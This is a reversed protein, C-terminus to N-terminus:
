ASNQVLRAFCCLMKLHRSFIFTAVATFHTREDPLGNWPNAGTVPFVHDGRRHRTAISPRVVLCNTSSSCLRRRSPVYGVRTFDSSLYRTYGLRSSLPIDSDSYNLSSASPSVFALSPQCAYSANYVSTRRAHYAMSSWQQLTTRVSARLIGHFVQRLRAVLTKTASPLLM